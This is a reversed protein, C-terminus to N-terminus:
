KLILDVNFNIWIGGTDDECITKGLFSGSHQHQHNTQHGERNPQPHGELM